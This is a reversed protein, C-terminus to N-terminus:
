RYVMKKREDAMLVTARVGRFHGGEGEHRRRRGGVCGLFRGVHITLRVSAMKACVPLIESSPAGKFGHAGKPRVM